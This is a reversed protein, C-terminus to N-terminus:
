KEHQVVDCGKKISGIIFYDFYVQPLCAGESSPFVCVSLGEYNEGEYLTWAGDGSVILSQVAVVLGLSPTDKFFWDSSGSFYPGSYLNISPFCWDARSGAYRLSSAQNKFQDPLDLCTHDGYTWYVPQGQDQEQSNYETGAYLIWTGTVCCSTIRDEWGYKGLDTIADPFVTSLGAGDYCELQQQIAQGAHSPVARAIVAGLLTLIMSALLALHSIVCTYLLLTM